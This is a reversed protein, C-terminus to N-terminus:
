FCLSVALKEFDEIERHKSILREHAAQKETRTNTLEVLTSKIFALSTETAVLELQNHLLARYIFLIISFNFKTSYLIISYKLM